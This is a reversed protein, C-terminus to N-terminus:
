IPDREKRRRKAPRKKPLEPWRLWSLASDIDAGLQKIREDSDPAEIVDAISQALVAGLEPSRVFELGLYRTPFRHNKLCVSDEALQDVIRAGCLPCLLRVRVQPSPQKRTM